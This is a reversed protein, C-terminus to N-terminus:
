LEGIEPLADGESIAEYIKEHGELAEGETCYSWNKGAYIGTYIRSEFIVPKRAETRSKRLDFGVWATSILCDGIMDEALLNYEKDKFLNEYEYSSILNAEKDYYKKSKSYSIM